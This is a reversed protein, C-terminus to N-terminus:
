GQDIIVHGQGVVDKTKFNITIKDAHMKVDQYEVTVDPELIAYEDKEFQQHGGPPLSYKIESKGKEKPQILSFRKKPKQKKYYKSAPGMNKGQALLSLSALTTLLIATLRTFRPPM